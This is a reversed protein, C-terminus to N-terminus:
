SFVIEERSVESILIDLIELTRLDSIIQLQEVISQPSVQLYRTAQQFQKRLSTAKM